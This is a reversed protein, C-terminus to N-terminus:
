EDSICRACPEYAGAEYEATTLRRTDSNAILGCDKTHYKNGTPAIYYNKYYKSENIASLIISLAIVVVVLAAGFIVLKTRNRRLFGSLRYSFPPSTIYGAFDNAERECLVDKGLVQASKLHDCSIHGQEHALVIQAEEDSLGGHLFVLRTNADAYTFGKSHAIYSQLHYTRILTTVDPDNYAPDYEIITYGESQLIRRLDKATASTLHNKKLFKKAEKLATETM